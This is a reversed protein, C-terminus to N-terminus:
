LDTTVISVREVLKCNAFTAGPDEATIELSLLGLVAMLIFLKGSM